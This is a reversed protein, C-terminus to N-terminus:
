QQKAVRRRFTFWADTYGLVALAMILFVHLFPLLVYTMIVVLLPLNGVSHLWHVVALGQLWFVAFLVFAVSQLWAAGTVFALLSLLAMILAIVRGLNLDSFRGYDGSEGPILKYLWYGFVLYVSYLMWTSLVIAMTLMNATMVPDSEMLQAQERLNNARTWELLVTMVPDWYAVMDDIVTYFGVVALAAVLVSVQLTLTLSRTAQLVLGLMIAPVWTSLAAVLIQLLPSGTVLAVLALIVRAVAAELVATRSGQKLVLLVMIVGSVMQLLPLLLTAALAIVANQPRAVLWVVLAQV